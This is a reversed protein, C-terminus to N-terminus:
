TKCESMKTSVDAQRGSRAVARSVTVYDRGIFDAVAKMAYGHDRVASAARTDREARTSVGEFLRGRTEAHTVPEVTGGTGIEDIGAEVLRVYRRAAAALGGAGSLGRLWDVTLFGAAAVPNLVISRSVEHLYAHGDVLRAGYRCLAHYHNRMLGYAHCRVHYRAVVSALVSLFASCDADDRERHRPLHRWPVVAPAPADNV